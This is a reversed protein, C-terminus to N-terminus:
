MKPAEITVPKNWNSYTMVADGVTVRRPLNDSGVCISFTHAVGKDDKSTTEYLTCSEGNVTESGKKTMTVNPDFTAVRGSAGPNMGSAGGGCVPAQQASSPVRMWRPGIKTYMDNGVRVTEIVQAGSKTQMRMKDPCSIDMSMDTTGSKMTTHWSTAKEMASSIMTGTVVTEAKSV